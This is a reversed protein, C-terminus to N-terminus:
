ASELRHSSTDGPIGRGSTDLLGKTQKNPHPERKAKNEKEALLKTKMKDAM